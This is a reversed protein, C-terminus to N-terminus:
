SRRRLTQAAFGASLTALLGLMMTSLAPVPTPAAPARRLMVTAIDNGSNPDIYDNRMLFFSFNYPTPASQTLAIQLHCTRTEGAEIPPAGLGAAYWWLRYDEGGTALDGVIHFFFCEASNVSILNLENVYTSSSVLITSQPDPGYNTVSLVMDIPQGPILNSTPSATLTVGVDSTLVVQAQTVEATAAILIGALLIRLLPM